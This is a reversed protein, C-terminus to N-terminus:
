FLNNNDVIYIMRIYGNEYYGGTEGKALDSFSETELTRIINIMGPFIWEKKKYTEVTLSNPINVTYHTDEQLKSLIEETNSSFYFDNFIERNKEIESRSISLDSYVGKKENPTVKKSVYCVFIIYHEDDMTNAKKKNNSKIESLLNKVENPTVDTGCYSEFKSNNAQAESSYIMVLRVKRDVSEAPIGLIFTILLIAGIAITALVKPAKKNYKMILAILFLVSLVVFVAGVITQECLMWYIASNISTFMGCSLIMKFMIRKNSIEKEKDKHKYTSVVVSMIIGFMIGLIGLALFLTPSNVENKAIIVDAYCFHQYGVILLLVLLIIRTITKKM